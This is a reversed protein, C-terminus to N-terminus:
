ELKVKKDVNLMMGKIKDNNQPSLEVNQAYYSPETFRSIKDDLGLQNCYYLLEELRVQEGHM